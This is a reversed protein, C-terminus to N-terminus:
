SVLDLTLTEGAQADMLLLRGRLLGRESGILYKVV